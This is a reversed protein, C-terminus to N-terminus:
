RNRFEPASKRAFSEIGAAADQSIIVRSNLAFELEFARDLEWSRIAIEKATRIALPGNQLMRHALEFARDDVDADPAVENVLGIQLARSADIRDGILLLEMARAWGLQRTLRVNTGSGPILGIGVEPLAFSASDGVVRIDTGLLLEFGGGLCLGRIAAVVPTYVDSFFRVTPEPNLADRRQRVVEPLLEHLDGGVSFARDGEGRLVIVWVDPDLDLEVSADRIDHVMDLTLANMKEPRALTLVGIHGERAVTIKSEPM